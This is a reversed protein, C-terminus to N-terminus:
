KSTLALVVAHHAEGVLHEFGQTLQYLFFLFFLLGRRPRSNGLILAFGRSLCGPLLFLGVRYHVLGGHEAKVLLGESMALGLYDVLHEAGVKGAM